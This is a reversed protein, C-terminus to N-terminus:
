IFFIWGKGDKKEDETEPPLSIEQIIPEHEIIRLINLFLRIVDDETYDYYRAQELLYNYLGDLTRINNQELDLNLLLNLLDGSSTGIMLKIMERLDGTELYDLLLSIVDEQTYDYNNAQDMLYSILEVPKEIGEEELDLEQLVNLLDGTAIETLNVMLENMEERQSLRAFLNNVDEPEYGYNEAESLLYEYLEQLSNITSLDMEELAKSLSDNDSMLLLEDRYVSLYETQMNKIILDNVDQRTYTHEDVHDRLWFILEEESSIGEEELDLTLLVEQLEGDSINALDQRLLETAEAENVPTILLLRDVDEASFSENAAQDILYKNLQDATFIGLAALEIGSLFNKLDGSANRTLRDHYDELGEEMVTQSVAEQTDSAATIETRPTYLIRVDKYSYNGRRDILKFKLLNDGPVPLYSYVFHRKEVLFSDQRVQKGAQIIDVYLNAKRELTLDIKVTDGTEVLILTDKVKIDDQIRILDALQKAQTLLIAQKLALEKEMYGAPIVFSTTTTEIDEGEVILDYKGVPAAFTFEGTEPDAIAVAVTDGSHQSIVTIHVPHTLKDIAEIGLVGRVQFKRPHTESFIEYLYIDALGYGDELLRPFYAFTGNRVPVFFIDDDTTNIPYGANIPVSWEGDELLTSYFVDYGGMNYHGY